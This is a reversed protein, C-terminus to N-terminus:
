GQPAVAIVFGAVGVLVAATAVVRIRWVRPVTRGLRGRSARGTLFLAAAIALISWGMVPRSPGFPVSPKLMALGVGSFALASREWALATLGEAPTDIM